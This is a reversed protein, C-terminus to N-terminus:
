KEGGGNSKNAIAREINWSACVLEQKAQKKSKIGTISMYRAIKKGHEAQERQKKHANTEVKFTKKDDSIAFEALANPNEEKLRDVGEQLDNAARQPQRRDYTFCNSLNAVEEITRITLASSNNTAEMERFAKELSRSPPSLNIMDKGMPIFRAEEKMAQAMFYDIELMFDGTNKPDKIYSKVLPSHVEIGNPYRLFTETAQIANLANEFYERDRREMKAKAEKGKTAKKNEELWKDGRVIRLIDDKSVHVYLINGEKHLSKGTKLDTLIEDKISYTVLNSIMHPDSDQMAGEVSKRMTLTYKGNKSTYTKEIKDPEKEERGNKIKTKGEILCSEVGELKGSKDIYWEGNYPALGSSAKAAKARKEKVSRDLEKRESLRENLPDSAKLEKLQRDEEELDAKAQLYDAVRKKDEISTARKYGCFDMRCLALNNPSGSANFYGGTALAGGQSAQSCESFIGGWLAKIEDKEDIESLDKLLADISNLGAQLAKQPKKNSEFTKRIGRLGDIARTLYASFAENKTPAVCSLIMEVVYLSALANSSVERLADSFRVAMTAIAGNGKSELQNIAMSHAFLCSIVEVARLADLLALRDKESGIPPLPYFGAWLLFDFSPYAPIGNGNVPKLPGSQYEKKGKGKASIKALTYRKARGQKAQREEGERDDTDIAAQKYDRGRWFPIIPSADDSFYLAHKGDFAGGGKYDQMTELIPKLHEASKEM